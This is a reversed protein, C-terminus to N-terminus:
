KELRSSPRIHSSIFQGCEECRYNEIISKEENSGDGSGSDRSYIYLQESNINVHKNCRPCYDM